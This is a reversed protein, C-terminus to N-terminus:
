DKKKKTTSGTMTVGGAKRQKKAIWSMGEILKDTKGVIPIKGLIKRMNNFDKQSMDSGKRANNERTQEKQKDTTNRTTSGTIQAVSGVSSFGFMVVILVCFIKKM